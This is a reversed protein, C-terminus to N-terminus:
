DVSYLKGEYKLTALEIKGVSRIKTGDSIDVVMDIKWVHDSGQKEFTGEGMGGQTTGDELYAGGAWECSGSTASAESLPRSFKLTGFVTGFGTASGAFSAYSSLNGDPAKAYTTGTHNLSFEGIQESM